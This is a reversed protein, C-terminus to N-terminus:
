DNEVESNYEDHLKDNVSSEHKRGEEYLLDVTAYDSEYVIEDNVKVVLEYKVEQSEKWQDFTPENISSEVPWTANHGLIKNSM